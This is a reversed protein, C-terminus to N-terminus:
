EFDKDTVEKNIKITKVKFPMKMDGSTQTVSHPFLIGEVPKYDSFTTLVEIDGMQPDKLFNSEQLKLGTKVSYYINKSELSIVYAEEDGVKEIGKLTGKKHNKDQFPESQAKNQNIEKPSMDSKKGEIELYGTKGNFVEKELVQGGIELHFMVKNPVSSKLVSKVPMGQQMDAESVVFLTKVKNVKDEGGIAKFYANVITEPTVGEPVEAAEPKQAPNAFKDFYNIPLNLKELEQSVEDAKGVIIIRLNEPKFYKQAMKQIDEATVANLRELYKQYYDEPLNYLATNLAFRAVNEPKQVGMVFNGTYAAKATKLEDDSVKEDRIKNIENLFEVVASDVVANRVSASAGFTSAYEDRNISSYAGYTFKRKERLNMFLRSNGSGGLIYNALSLPMYDPDTLKLEDINTALRINSQVATPVNILNIETKGVNQPKILDEAPVEGKKWDAFLKKVLAETDKSDIDGVIALYANNPKYYTNYNQEIDALTVNEVTEKTMIEGYPHNKGYILAPEVNSSISSVSKEGARIGELTLAKQKDLEEQAFHPNKVADAMLAMVEPFHTKLSAMSAGSNSISLSAGMFDVKENFDDKSINKTGAGMLQGLLESVGVKEKELYPKNDIILSASVRPLKHNEVMLVKLGNDLAFTHPKGFTVQPMPGAKPPQSRDLEQDKNCASFALLVLLLTLIKHIM